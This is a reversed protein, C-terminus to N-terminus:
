VLFPKLSPRTDWDIVLQSGYWPVYDMGFIPKRFMHPRGWYNRRWENSCSSFSAHPINRKFTNKTIINNSSGALDIGGSSLEFYLEDLARNNIIHNRTILNRESSLVRIGLGNDEILNHSITNEQSDDLLIGVSMDFQRLIRTRGNHLHNETITINDSDAVRIGLYSTTFECNTIECFSCGSLLVGTHTQSISLDRIIIDNCNILVVQGADDIVGGSIGKLCIIPKGDKTNGEVFNDTYLTEWAMISCNLLTNDIIQCDISRGPSIGCDFQNWRFLEITNNCLITRDSDYFYIGEFNFIISDGEFIMNNEVLSDPVQHLYVGYEVDRIINDAITCNSQFSARVGIMSSQLTFGQVTVGPAKIYVISGQEGWLGEAYIVTTEKKEGILRLSCNVVLVEDYPSSDDFVFVTDNDSANDIANQIISFNGPGTGGVFLTSGKQTNIPNSSKVSQNFENITDQSINAGQVADGRIIFSSQLLLICIFFGIVQKKLEKNM